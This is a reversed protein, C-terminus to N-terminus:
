RGPMASYTAQRLRRWRVPRSAASKVPRRWARRPTRRLQALGTDLEHIDLPDVGHRALERALSDRDALAVDALLYAGLYGDSEGPEGAGAMQRLARSLRIGVEHESIGLESAVARPSRRDRILEEVVIRRRPPVEPLRDLLPSRRSRPMTARLIRLLPEVHHSPIAGLVLLLVPYLLLALVEVPYRGPGLLPALKTGLAFCL